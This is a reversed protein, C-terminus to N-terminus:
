SAKTFKEADAVLKLLSEVAATAGTLSIHPKLERIRGALQEPTRSSDEVRAYMATSLQELDSVGKNGLAQAVFRLRPRVYDLTRPFRARLDRSAPTTMYSPGYPPRPDIVVLQDARMATLEDRLPFSYPGHKYLTFTFELPVDFLEEVLYISKQIHTEGTWSGAEHLQDVLDAVIASTRLRSM